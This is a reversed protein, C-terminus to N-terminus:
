VKLTKVPPKVGLVHEGDSLLLPGVDVVVLADLHVADLLQVVNELHLEQRIVKQKRSRYHCIINLFFVNKEQLVTLM